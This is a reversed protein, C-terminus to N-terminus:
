TGRAAEDKRRAHELLAGQVSVAEDGAILEVESLEFRGDEYDLVALLREFLSSPGPGPLDVSIVTGEHLGVRAEGEPRRVTLLGSRREAEAFALLSTVSVQRLDGSLGSDSERDGEARARAVVRRVRRLLEETDVPKAIYDDVGAEYGRIRDADSGLTTLFVVPVNRTSDRARLLRLLQWGDMVPMNVDTLVVDPPEKLAKGLAELGHEAAVVRHGANRLASAVRGRQIPSDEVVLISLPEFAEEPAPETAAVSTAVLAAIRAGLAEVEHQDFRMGMGPARGQAQARAADLVYAVTAPIRAPPGGDPLELSLQVSTGPPLQVSAAVYLGGQSLDSTYATVLEDVSRFHVKIRAAFRPSKRREGGSRDTGSM